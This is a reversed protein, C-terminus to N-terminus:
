VYSQLSISFICAMLFSCEQCSIVGVLEKWLELGTSSSNSMSFTLL